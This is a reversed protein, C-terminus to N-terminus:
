RRFHRTDDNPSTNLKDIWAEIAPFVIPGGTDFLDGHGVGRVPLFTVPARADRALKGSMVFPVIKDRDGHAIFIPCTVKGIREDSPFRYKLLRRILGAPFMPYHYAATDGMNTYASCLILSRVPHHIALNVAVGSGLSWGAAIIDGAQVDKM